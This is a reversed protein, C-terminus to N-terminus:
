RIADEHSYPIGCLYCYYGADRVDGNFADMADMDWRLATGRDGAGLAILDAIRAEWRVVARAEDQQREIERADATKLFSDWQAQLESDSMAAYDLRVRYGYAEKSLDSIVHLMEDREAPTMTNTNIM